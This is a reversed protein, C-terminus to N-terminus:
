KGFVLMAADRGHESTKGEYKTLVRFYDEELKTRNRVPAIAEFPIHRDTCFDEWIGADRKVSGAGQLRGKMRSYSPDQPIWKRQRADEFLVKLGSQTNEKYWTVIELAKHIKLTEISLFKKSRSDWIAMGTHVGTDIGIYIMDQKIM